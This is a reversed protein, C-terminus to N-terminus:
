SMDNLTSSKLRKARERVPAGGRETRGYRMDGLGRKPWIAIHIFDSFVASGRPMM